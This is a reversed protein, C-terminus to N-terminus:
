TWDMAKAIDPFQEAFIQKIEEALERHELQTAPDTRLEIYHIWSRVSGKMYLVTATSLPLLFRAQEKAIGRSLAEKYLSTSEVEIQDQAHQFWEQDESSLDDISNQRNKLDQRRGYYHIIETAPAYRLSYEQFSFSRHRLIQAAVARSTNIEVTMDAMEFPSWHKHNICYKLLKPATDFNSQNSPNSVRAIYSILEQASLDKLNGTGATVSILSVKKM